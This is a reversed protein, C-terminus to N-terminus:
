QGEASEDPPPETPAPEIEEEPQLVGV